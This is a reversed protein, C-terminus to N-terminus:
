DTDSLNHHGQTDGSFGQNHDPGPHRDRRTDSSDDRLVDDASRYGIISFRQFLVEDELTM